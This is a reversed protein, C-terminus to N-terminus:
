TCFVGQCVNCIYGGSGVVLADVNVDLALYDVPCFQFVSNLHINLVLPKM